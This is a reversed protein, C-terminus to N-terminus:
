CRACCVRDKVACSRVSMEAQFGEVINAVLHNLVMWESCMELGLRAGLVCQAAEIRAECVFIM